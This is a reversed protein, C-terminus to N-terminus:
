PEEFERPVWARIVGAAREASDDTLHHQTDLLISSNNSSSQTHSIYPRPLPKTPAPSTPTPQEDRPTSPSMPGFRDSSPMNLLYDDRLPPRPPPHEVMAVCGVDLKNESLNLVKLTCNCKLVQANYIIGGQFLLCSAKLDNERLDLMRLAGLHSDLARLKALLTAVGQGWAAWVPWGVWRSEISCAVQPRVTCSGPYIGHRSAVKRLRHLLPCPPPNPYVPDHHHLTHLAWPHATLAPHPAYIDDPCKADPAKPPFSAGQVRQHVRRHRM